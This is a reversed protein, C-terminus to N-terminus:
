IFPALIEVIDRLVNHDYTSLKPTGNLESLKSEPIAFVSRIMKLQSNWRTDNDNQPRKEEKLADTAITSRQTFSALNSCQKIVIKIQGAKKLGGKVVSQLTHAFCSHHELLDNESSIDVFECDEQSDTEDKSTDESDNEEKTDDEYGPLTLM